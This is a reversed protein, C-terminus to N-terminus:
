KEQSFPSNHECKSGCFGLSKEKRNLEKLTTISLIPELLSQACILIPEDKFTPVIGSSVQISHILGNGSAKKDRKASHPHEGERRM